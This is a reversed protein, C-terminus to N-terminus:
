KESTIRELKKKRIYNKVIGEDFYTELTPYQHVQWWESGDYEGRDYWVQNKCMIIGTLEQGGFGSNYEIDISNMFVYWDKTNFGPNLIAEVGNVNVRAAIVNEEAVPFEVRANM